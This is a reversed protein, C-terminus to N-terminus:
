DEEYSVLVVTINDRGGQKEACEILRKGALTFDRECVSLLSQIEPDSVMNYLGDSCLLYVEGPSPKGAVTDAAVTKGMGVARSVINRLPHTRAEKATLLGARVYDNVLTHDETLQLLTENKFLYARSDGVHGIMVQDPMALLAVLTTGMGHCAAEKVGAEYVTRNAAMIASIFHDETIRAGQPPLEKRLAAVALPSAVDGAREGGLGDAVVYLSAEPFLGFADENRQRIRGVSTQGSFTIKM